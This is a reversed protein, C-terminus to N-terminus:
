EATLEVKAAADGEVAKVALLPAAEAATLMITDGREYPQQDHEIYTLAVYASTEGPEAAAKKAPTRAM